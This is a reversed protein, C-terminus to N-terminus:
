VNKGEQSWIIEALQSLQANSIFESKKLLNANEGNLKQIKSVVTSLVKKGYRYRKTNEDYLNNLEELKKSHGQKVTQLVKDVLRSKSDKEVLTTSEFIIEQALQTYVQFM